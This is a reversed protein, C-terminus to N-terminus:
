FFLTFNIIKAERPWRRLGRPPRKPRRPPRKPRRPGMMPTKSRYKPTKPREQATKSAEQATKSGDQATKTGEQTTEPGRPGDQRGGPARKARRPARKAGFFDRSVVGPFGPPVLCAWLNQPGPGKLVRESLVSSLPCCPVQPCEVEHRCARHRIHGKVCYMSLM